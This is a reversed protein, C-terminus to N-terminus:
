FAAPAFAPDQTKDYAGGAQGTTDTNTLGSVREWSFLEGISFPQDPTDLLRAIKAYTTLHVTTGVKARAPEWLLDVSRSHLEAKFGLMAKRVGRAEAQQKINLVLESEFPDGTWAFWDGPAARFRCAFAALIPLTISQATGNWVAYLGQRGRNISAGLEPVSNIGFRRAIPEIALHLQLREDGITRM